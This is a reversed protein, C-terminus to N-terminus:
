NRVVDLFNELGNREALMAKHRPSDATVGALERDLRLLEKEVDRAKSRDFLADACPGSGDGGACRAVSEVGGYSCSERKTCAGLRIERFSTRGRRAAAALAQVDKDGVLNVLISEKRQEGLPSVFRDSMASQLTHAMTEYMAAVIVTEVEENLHLKTYGRGYYLPMLRSAHKMQVQMSSDSLLGSSFM